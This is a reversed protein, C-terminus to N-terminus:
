RDNAPRPSRAAAEAAFLRDLHVEISEESRWSRSEALALRGLARRQAPSLSSLAAEHEAEVDLASLHM